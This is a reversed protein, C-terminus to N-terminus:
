GRALTHVRWALFAMLGDGLASVPIVWPAGGLLWVTALFAVAISKTTLLFTVGGYRFCEILYGAAVVVHFAGAQRAFFLPRVEGFGGLAAGWETLFLLALGVGVSHAAILVVLAREARKLASRGAGAVV